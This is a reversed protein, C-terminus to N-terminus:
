EAELELLKKHCYIFNELDGFLGIIEERPLLTHKSSILGRYSSYKWEHPEDAFGAEIPNQHIYCILKRLYDMDNIKKRRFARKFLAGTRNKFFNFHKAYANFCNGLVQSLKESIHNKNKKILEDATNGKLVTNLFVKIENENKFRLLLHFHNPMLCYSLLESVPLIHKKLQSLFYIYDKDTSFLTENGVAHNYIHYYHEPELIIQPDSM